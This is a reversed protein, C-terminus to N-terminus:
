HKFKSYEMLAVGYIDMIEVGFGVLLLAVGYRVIEMTTMPPPSESFENSKPTEKLMLLIGFIINVWPIAVLIVFWANLNHDNLRKICLGAWNIMVVLIVLSYFISHSSGAKIATSFIRLMISHVLQFDLVILAIYFWLMLTYYTYRLRGIRGRASFLYSFKEVSLTQNRPFAYPNSEESM